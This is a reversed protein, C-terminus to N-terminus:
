DQLTYMVHGAKDLVTTIVRQPQPSHPFSASCTITGGVAVVALKRPGCNVLSPAVLTRKKINTTLFDVLLPVKIIADRPVVEYQGNSGTVTGDLELHQGDLVTTCVFSTGKSTQIDAPCSVPPPPPGIKYSSALQSSIGRAVSPGSLTHHPGVSVGCASLCALLGAVGVLASLKRMM